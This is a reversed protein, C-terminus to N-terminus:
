QTFRNTLQCGSILCSTFPQLRHRLIRLSVEPVDLSGKLSPALRLGKSSQTIAQPQPLPFSGDRRPELSKEHFMLVALLMSGLAAAMQRCRIMSSPSRRGAIQMEHSRCAASTASVWQPLDRCLSRCFAVENTGDETSHILWSSYRVRAHLAIVHMVLTTIASTLLNSTM